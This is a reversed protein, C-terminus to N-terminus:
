VGDEEEEEEIEPRVDREISMGGKEDFNLIFPESMDSQPLSVCAAFHLGQQSADYILGDLIGGRKITPSLYAAFDAKTFTRTIIASGNRTVRLSYVNDAFEYGMDDQVTPLDPAPERHITYVYTRGNTRITDTYDYVSMQQVGNAGETIATAAYEDKQNDSQNAQKCSAMIILATLLILGIRFTMNKM